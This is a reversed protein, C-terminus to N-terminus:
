KHIDSTALEREHMCNGYAAEISTGYGKTNTVLDVCVYQGREPQTFHYRPAPKMPRWGANKDFLAISNVKAPGFCQQVFEPAIFIDISGDARPELRFNIGLHTTSYPM